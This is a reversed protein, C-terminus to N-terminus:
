PEESPTAIVSIEGTGGCCWSPGCGAGAGCVKLGSRLRKEHRRVGSWYGCENEDRCGILGKCNPCKM